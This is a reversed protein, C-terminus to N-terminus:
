EEYYSMNNSLKEIIELIFTIIAYCLAFNNKDFLNGVLTPVFLQTVFFRSYVYNGSFVVQFNVHYKNYFECLYELIDSTLIETSNLRNNSYVHLVKNFDENDMEIYKLQSNTAGLGYTTIYELNETNIKTYSAVNKDLIVTSFLGEFVNQTTTTASINSAYFKYKDKTSGSISDKVNFTSLQLNDFCATQYYDQEDTFSTNNYDLNPNILQIFKRIVNIYQLKFKKYTLLFLVVSIALVILPILSYSLNYSRLYTFIFVILFALSSLISIVIFFIIKKKTSKIESFELSNFKAFVEDFGDPTISLNVKKTSYKPMLIFKYVLFAVMLVVLIELVLM